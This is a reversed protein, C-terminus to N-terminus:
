IIKDLDIYEGLDEAIMELLKSRYNYLTRTGMGYEMAKYELNSQNKITDNYIRRTLSGMINIKEEAKEFVKLERELNAIRKNLQEFRLVKSSTPDSKGGKGRPLGDMSTTTEEIIDLKMEEYLEKLSRLEKKRQELTRAKYLIYNRIALEM